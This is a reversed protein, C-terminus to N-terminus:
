FTIVFNTRDDSIHNEMVCKGICVNLMVSAANFYLSRPYVSPYSGAGNTGRRSQFKRECIQASPALRAVCGM